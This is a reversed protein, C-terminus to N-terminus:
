AKLVNQIYDQSLGCDTAGELIVNEYAKSPKGLQQPERLYVIANYFNGDDGEVEVTQRDYFDPYGEYRDLSQLCCENIKFLGGEVINKDLKVINAVACKRSSSYGDYVFKYGNLKAKTIFKASPCREKMQKHNMNSGYAFYYM